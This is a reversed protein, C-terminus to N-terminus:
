DRGSEARLSYNNAERPRITMTMWMMIGDQRHQIYLLNNNISSEHKIIQVLCVQLTM